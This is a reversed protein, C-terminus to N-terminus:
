PPTVLPPNAEWIKECEDLPIGLSDCQLKIDIIYNIKTYNTIGIVTAFIIIWLIFFILVTKLNFFREALIEEPNYKYKIM